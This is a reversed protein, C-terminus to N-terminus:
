GIVLRNESVCEHDGFCCAVDRKCVKVGRKCWASVTVGDDGRRGWSLRKRMYTVLMTMRRPRLPRIRFTHEALTRIM